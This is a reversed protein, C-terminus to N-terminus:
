TVVFYAFDKNREWGKLKDTKTSRTTVFCAIFFDIRKRKKPSRSEREAASLGL